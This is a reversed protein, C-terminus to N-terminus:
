DADGAYFSGLLRQNNSRPLDYSLRAADTAAIRGMLASKSDTAKKELGADIALGYKPRLEIALNYGAALEDEPALPLTAASNAVPAWGLAIGDAEWESMMLNLSRVAQEAKDPPVSQSTDIVGLHGLADTVVQLVTSM